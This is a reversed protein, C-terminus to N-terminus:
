PAVPVPNKSSTYARADQVEAAVPLAERKVINGGITLYQGGTMGLFTKTGDPLTGCSPLLLLCFLGTAILPLKYSNNRQGDDLYDLIVLGAEKSASAITFVLLAIPMFQEPIAHSYAALGAVVSGIKVVAAVSAIATKM